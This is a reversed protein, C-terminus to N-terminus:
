PADDEIVWVGSGTFAYVRHPAAPDITLGNIGYTQLSDTWDQWTAGGNRSRFIQGPEVSAWVVRALPSAAVATITRRALKAGARAWTKGGDASKWVGSDTALYVLRLDVPDVAIRHALPLNLRLNPQTWSAGGDTSRFLAAKPTSCGLQGPKTAALYITSPSSPAFALDFIQCGPSPTSLRVWTAGRDPSQLLTGGAAGLATGEAGWLKSPDAPDVWLIEVSPPPSGPGRLQTWSSGGDSTRWLWPPALFYVTSPASPDVAVTRTPFGDPTPAEPSRREWSGGGDGSRFLGQDPVGAWLVDPNAPDVAFTRVQLAALGRNRREWTTGGDASAFVGGEDLGHPRTGLYVTSPSTPAVTVNLAWPGPPGIQTWHAGGDTSRFALGNLGDVAWVTDPLGPSVALSSILRAEAPKAVEQWSAGGDASRFLRSGISVYVTRPDSPSIALAEVSGSPLGDRVPKWSSAGDESKFLGYVPTGAFVTGAPSPAVALATVSFVGPTPLRSTPRWTAGGDLSSRVGGFVAAYLRSPRAPDVAIKSASFVANAANRAAVTWHAGGDTSKLVPGSSQAVYITGPHVPDVAVNASTDDVQLPTWSAGGDISKFAGSLGTTAYVVRANTPDVTLALAAGGFPGLPTWRPTAALPVALLLVLAAALLPVVPLPRRLALM